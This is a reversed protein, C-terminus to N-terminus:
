VAQVLTYLLPICVFWGFPIDDDAGVGAAVPEGPADLDFGDAHYADILTRSDDQPDPVLDVVCRAGDIDADRIEGTHFQEEIGIARCLDRLKWLNWSGIYDWVKRTQGQARVEAIVEIMENGKKSLKEKASLSAPFQGTIAQIADSPDFRM